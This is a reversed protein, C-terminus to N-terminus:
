HQLSKRAVSKIKLLVIYKILVLAGSSPAKRSSLGFIAIQCSKAQSRELKLLSSYRLNYIGVILM